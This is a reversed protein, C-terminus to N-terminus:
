RRFLLMEAIQNPLGRAQSDFDFVQAREDILM